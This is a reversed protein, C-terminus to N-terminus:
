RLIEGREREEKGEREKGEIEREEEEERTLQGYRRGKKSLKMM